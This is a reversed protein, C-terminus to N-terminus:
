ICHIPIWKWRRTSTRILFNQSFFNYYLETMRLKAYQLIFFGVIITEKHEIESKALEVEYQQDNIHGLRKFMKNIAAHTREDITYKTISHRSRDINQYGYWNKARLNVTEAVVSSHPNEEGQRRANAASQVFNYFCKVPTWEVFRYIKTCLPGPELYFLLLPTNITGNTLEFSSILMRRPQSMLRKTRAYEQM